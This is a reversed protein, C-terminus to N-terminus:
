RSIPVVTEIFENEGYINTIKEVLIVGGPLIAKIVPGDIGFRDGESLTYTVKPKDKVKLLVRRNKGILVGVISIEELDYEIDLQPTNDISAERASKEKISNISKIVPVQFPDRLEFPKKIKTQGDFFGDLRAHSNIGSSLILIAIINRM